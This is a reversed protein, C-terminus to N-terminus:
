WCGKGRASDCAHDQASGGVHAGFLTSAFLDIRPRVDPCEATHQEFEQCSFVCKVPLRYGVHERRDKTGFGGPVQQGRVHGVANTRQESLTQNYSDSGVSDTHGEIVVKREPSQQLAQAVRDITTYAGPKLTAKGTDFLVDGLTLVLGRDTKKAKLDELERELSAAHDKAVAAERERAETLVTQREAEAKQIQEKSTVDMVKENAIAANLSAINAEYKIDALDGHDAALKNARELAKRAEAIYSAAVGARPSAEVQAVVARASELEEIRDPTSACSALVAAVGVGILYQMRKM